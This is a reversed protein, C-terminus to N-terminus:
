EFIDISKIGGLETVLDARLADIEQTMMFFNVDFADQEDDLDFQTQDTDEALTNLPEIGKIQLTPNSILHCYIRDQWTVGLLSVVLGANVHKEVEEADLEYNKYNVKLGSDHGSEVVFNNEITFAEGVAIDGFLAGSLYSGIPANVEYPVLPFSAFTKGLLSLVADLQSKSASNIAVYREDLNIWLHVDKESSFAQKLLSLRVQEKIEQRKQKGVSYDQRRELEQIAQATREKLISAPLLKKAMRVCLLVHNGHTYVTEKESAVPYWGEGVEESPLLPTYLLKEVAEKIQDANHILNPLLHFFTINKFFM